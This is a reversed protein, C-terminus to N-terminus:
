LVKKDDFFANSQSTSMNPFNKEWTHCFTAWSCIPKALVLAAEGSSKDGNENISIPYSGKNTWLAVGDYLVPATTFSSSLMMVVIM